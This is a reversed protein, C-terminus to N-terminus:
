FPNRIVDDQLSIASVSFSVWVSDCAVIHPLRHEETLADIHVTGQRVNSDTWAVIGTSVSTNPSTALPVFMLKWEYQLGRGRWHEAGIRHDTPFRFRSPQHQPQSVHMLHCLLEDACPNDCYEWLGLNLLLIQAFISFWICLRLLEHPLVSSCTLDFCRCVAWNRASCAGCVRMRFSKRIISWSYSTGVDSIEDVPWVAIQLKFTEWTARPLWNAVLEAFCFGTM